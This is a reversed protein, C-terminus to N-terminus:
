QWDSPTPSVLEHGTLSMTFQSPRDLLPAAVKGFQEALATELAAGTPGHDTINASEPSCATLLALVALCRSLRCVPTDASLLLSM